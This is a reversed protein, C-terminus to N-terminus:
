AFLSAKTEDPNRIRPSEKRTRVTTADLGFAIIKITMSELNQIGHHRKIKWGVKGGGKWVRKLFDLSHEEEVELL